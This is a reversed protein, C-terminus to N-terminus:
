RIIIENSTFYNIEKDGVKVPLGNLFDYEVKLGNIKEIGSIMGISLQLIDVEEFIYPGDDPAHFYKKVSRSGIEDIYSFIDFDFHRKMDNGFVHKKTYTDWSYVTNFDRLRLLGRESFNVELMEAKENQIVQYHGEATKFETVIRFMNNGTRIIVSQANVFGGVLILGLFFFNKM